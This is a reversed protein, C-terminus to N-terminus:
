TLVQAYSVSFDQVQMNIGSGEGMTFDPGQDYTIVSVANYGAIAGVKDACAARVLNIVIEKQPYGDAMVTVQVRETVRPRHRTKVIHRDVGSVKIISISPLATGIPLDSAKIREQPVVATMSGSAVLLARIIAVGSM